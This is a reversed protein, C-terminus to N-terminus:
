NQFKSSTMRGLNHGLFKKVKATKEATYVTCKVNQKAQLYQEKNGGQKWAKWFMKEAIALNVEDNQWWTARKHHRKKKKGYIENTTDLLVTKSLSWIEEASAAIFLISEGQVHIVM